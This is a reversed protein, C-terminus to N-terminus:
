KGANPDPVALVHGDADVLAVDDTASPLRASQPFAFM